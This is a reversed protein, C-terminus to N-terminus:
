KNRYEERLQNIIKLNGEYISMKKRDHFEWIQHCTFCLRNFNRPDNRFKNDAGKSIIHSYQSVMIINGGDDEFEEPLRCGCEQCVNPHLLFVKFYTERDDIIKQDNKAKKVTNRNKSYLGKALPKKKGKNALVKTLHVEQHSLGGHNNKYVCDPCLGKHNLPRKRDCEKCIGIKQNM